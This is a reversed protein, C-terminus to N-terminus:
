RKLLKALRAQHKRDREKKREERFDNEFSHVISLTVSKSLTILGFPFTCVLGLWLLPILFRLLPNASLMPTDLLLLPTVVPLGWMAALERVESKTIGCEALPSHIRHEAAAQMGPRYDGLDDANAGNVITRVGLEPLLRELQTYLETKCHFCRDPNNASYAPNEFERSEIIEYPIEFQRVFDAADRKHSEPISASDATVALMNAGCAQRAAWALYASDTGGSYAVLVRGLSRLHTFLKEQKARLAM